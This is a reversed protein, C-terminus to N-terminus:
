QKVFKASKVVNADEILSFIYVGQSFNSVGIEPVSEGEIGELVVKGTIDTIRFNDWAHNTSFRLKEHTPNPFLSLVSSNLPNYECNEAPSTTCDVEMCDNDLQSIFNQYPITDYNNGGDLPFDFVQYNQIKRFNEYNFTIPRRYDGIVDWATLVTDIKQAICIVSDGVSGFSAVPAEFPGNCQVTPGDWMRIIPQTGCSRPRDIIKLDIYQDGQGIIEGTFIDEEEMDCVAVKFQYYVPDCAFLNSSHVTIFFAVLLKLKFITFLLSSKKM